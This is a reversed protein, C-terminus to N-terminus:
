RVTVLLIGAHRFCWYGIILVLDGASRKERSGCRESDRRCNM